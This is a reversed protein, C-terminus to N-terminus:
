ASVPRQSLGSSLDATITLKGEEGDDADRTTVEVRYGKSYVLSSFEMLTMAAIKEKTTGLIYAAEETITMRDGLVSAFTDKDKKM